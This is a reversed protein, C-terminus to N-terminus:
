EVEDDERAVVTGEASALLDAQDLIEVERDCAAVHDDDLVDDVRPQREVVEHLRELEALRFADDGARQEVARIAPEHVVKRQAVHAEGHRVLVEDAVAEVELAAIAAQGVEPDDVSLKRARTGPSSGEM